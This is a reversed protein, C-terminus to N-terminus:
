RIRLSNLLLERAYVTMSLITMNSSHTWRCVVDKVTVVVCGEHQQHGHIIDGHEHMIQATAVVSYVM